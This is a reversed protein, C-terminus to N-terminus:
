LSSCDSRGLGPMMRLLVTILIAGLGVDITARLVLRESIRRRIARAVTAFPPGNDSRIAEPLGYDGFAREVDCAPWSSGPQSLRHLHRRSPYSPRRPMSPWRRMTPPRSPATDAWRVITKKVRSSPRAIKRVWSPWSDIRNMAGPEFPLFRQRLPTRRLDTTTTGAENLKALFAAIRGDLRAAEESIARRESIKKSSTTRPVEGWGARWSCVRIEVSICSPGALAMNAPDDDRCFDIIMKFGPALRRLLPRALKLVDRPDYGPRGTAM